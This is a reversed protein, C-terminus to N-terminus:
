TVCVACECLENGVAPCDIERSALVSRIDVVIATCRRCYIGEEVLLLAPLSEDWTTANYCAPCTSM